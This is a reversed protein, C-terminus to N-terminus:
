LIIGKFEVWERIIKNIALEKSANGSTRMEDRKFVVAKKADGSLKIVIKIPQDGTKEPIM